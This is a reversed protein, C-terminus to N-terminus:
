LITIKNKICLYLNRMISDVYVNGNCNSHGKVWSVYITYKHNDRIQKIKSWHDLYVRANSIENYINHVYLSDTFITVSHNKYRNKIRLLCNYLAMIEMYNSSINKILFRVEKDYINMKNDVIIFCYLGHMGPNKPYCSGDTYAYFM